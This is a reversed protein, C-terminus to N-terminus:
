LRLLIIRFGGYPCLFSCAGFSIACQATRSCGQTYRTYMYSTKEYKHVVQYAGSSLRALRHKPDGFARMM